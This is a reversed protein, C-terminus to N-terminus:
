FWGEDCIVQQFKLCLTIFLQEVVLEYFILRDLDCDNKAYFLESAVFM